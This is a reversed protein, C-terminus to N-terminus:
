LSPYPVQALLDSMLKPDDLAEETLDKTMEGVKSALTEVVKMGEFILNLSSETKLSEAVADVFKHSPTIDDTFALKRDVKLIKLLKDAETIASADGGTYKTLLEEAFKNREGGLTGTQYKIMWSTSKQAAILFGLATSIPAGVVGAMLANAVLKSSDKIRKKNLKAKATKTDVLKDDIKELESLQHTTQAISIANQIASIGAAVPPFLLWAATLTTNAVLSKIKDANAIAETKQMVEKQLLIEEYDKILNSYKAIEKGDSTKALRKQLDKITAQLKKIEEKYNDRNIWENLYALFNIFAAISSAGSDAEVAQKTMEGGTKGATENLGEAAAGRGAGFDKVSNVGDGNQTAATKAGEIITLTSPANTSEGQGYLNDAQSALSAILDSILSDHSDAKMSRLSKCIDDYDKQSLTYGTLEKGEEQYDDIGPQEGLEAGRAKQEATIKESEEAKEAAIKAKREKLQELWYETGVKKLEEERSNRYLKKLDDWGLKQIVNGKIQKKQIISEKGDSENATSKFNARLQLAKAGLLDAEKELGADDNINVKGKLQVTPKVRGQKQQVVHGLEHPLHKEQGPGLHIDTGQAYAHAQLQAPKDSNRHVKVDSLSLGSISEMGTKLQDPLGTKNEQRQIPNTKATTTRSDSLAQLQAIRSNGAYSLAKTQLQTTNSRNGRGDAAAQLSILQATSARTDVYELEGTSSIEEPVPAPTVTKNKQDAQSSFEGM